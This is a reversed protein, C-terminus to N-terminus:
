KQCCQYLLVWYTCYSGEKMQVWKNGEQRKLFPGNLTTGVSDCHALPSRHKTWNNHSTTFNLSSHCNSIAIVTHTLHDNVVQYFSELFPPSTNTIRTRPPWRSDCTIVNHLLEMLKDPVVPTILMLSIARSILMVWPFLHHIFSKLDVVFIKIFDERAILQTLHVYYISTEIDMETMM